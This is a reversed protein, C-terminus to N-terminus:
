SLGLLEEILVAPAPVPSPTHYQMCEKVVYGTRCSTMATWKTTAEQFYRSYASESDTKSLKGQLKSALLDRKILYLEDALTWGRNALYQQLEAEKPFREARLRKFEQEVEPDTVRLGQETDQGINWQSEILYSLAQERVAQHLKGCISPVDRNV